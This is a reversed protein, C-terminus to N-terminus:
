STEGAHEALETVADPVDDTGLYARIVEPDNRVESPTGDAVVKGFDLVTIRDAVGMVLTMDHEVLLIPIDLATRVMVILEAIEATEGANMGAAPEDLLLMSPETALGRAIDVRKSDGYSLGGVTSDLLDGIGLFECIEVVRERHRRQEKVMSPWRLGSAAFGGKTLHHRALMVNDLVTSHASLALNQFSRGMGKAAIQHPALGTIDTGALRVTGADSRYVGCIVNFCTSKGAGNPGILAHITGPAVTFSVDNLAKVGGFALSVGSVELAASM